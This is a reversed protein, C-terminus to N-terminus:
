LMKMILLNGFEMHALLNINPVIIYELIQPNHIVEIKKADMDGISRSMALCPYDEGFLWVRFSGGEEDNDDFAKELSGCCEYIRKKMPYNQNVIM